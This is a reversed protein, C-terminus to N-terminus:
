RWSPASSCWCSSCVIGAVRLVPWLWALDLGEDTRTADDRSDDEQVPEPPVVEEVTDPRVETVNEPDEQQPHGRPEPVAGVAAHRRDDGM